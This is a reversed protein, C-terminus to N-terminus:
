SFIEKKQVAENKIRDLTLSLTDKVHERIDGAVIIFLVDDGPRMIGEYAHAIVRFIGENKQMDSCIEQLKEFNVAIEVKNVSAHDKRSWARITGNHILTMGVNEAFGPEKKLEAIAKTIDM